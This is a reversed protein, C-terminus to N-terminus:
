YAVYRTLGLRQSILKFHVLQGPDSGIIDPNSRGDTLEM